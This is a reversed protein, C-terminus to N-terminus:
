MHYESLSRSKLLLLGDSRVVVKREVGDDEPSNLLNAILLHPASGKKLALDRPTYGSRNTVKTEAGHLLLWRTLTVHGAKAALHLMSNNHINVDDVSCGFTWLLNLARPDWTNSKSVRYAVLYLPTESDCNTIRIDAGANLMFKILEFNNHWCARLFPTYGHSILPDGPMCKNVSEPYQKLLEICKAINFDSPPSGAFFHISSLASTAEDMHVNTIAVRRRRKLLLIVFLVGAAAAAPIAAPHLHLHHLDATWDMVEELLINLYESFSMM